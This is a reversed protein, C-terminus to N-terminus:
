ECAKVGVYHYNGLEDLWYEGRFPWYEYGNQIYYSRSNDRDIQERELDKGAIEKRVQEKKNTLMELRLIDKQRFLDALEEYRAALHRRIQDNAVKQTSNIRSEVIKKSYQGVQSSKWAGPLGEIRRREADLNRLYSMSRRLDGEKMLERLVVFPLTFGRRNGRDRKLAQYSNSFRAQERFLATADGKTTELASKMDRLIPRYVRDFQNMVKQLEGYRCIFFYVVARLYLSEPQYFDEYYPSHLTHFNSLASRYRGDQLLAWSSEFLAEHWQETDRPIERYAGISEDWAKKQYLVRAKGLLADVRTRDTVGGSTSQALDEFAARARELDKGEEALALGMQYRARYFYRSNRPIKAFERAAGQYDKEGYKTEGKRFYLMDRNAAPFEEETVQKVAYKLFMDSDLQDAALALKELSQRLYRSQPKKSEDKIVDIFVFAAAQNLRMEYLMMGLIYKIQSRNSLYAPNQSLSFLLRSAEQFQSRAALDKAERLKPDENSNSPSASSKFNGKPKPAKGSNRSRNFGQAVLNMENEIGDLGEFVKPDPVTIPSENDVVEEVTASLPSVPPTAAQAAFSALLILSIHQMARKM